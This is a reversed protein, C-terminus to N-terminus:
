TYMFMPVSPQEPKTLFLDVIEMTITIPTKLNELINELQKQNNNNYVTLKSKITPLIKEILSIDIINEDEKVILTEDNSKKDTKQKKRLRKKIPQTQLQTKQKMFAIKIVNMNSVITEIRKKISRVGEEKQNNMDNKNIIYKLIDDSFVMDENSINYEKLISPLLFDSSIKMKEEFTFGDVKILNMRDRLIPNVRNIDNFSFVFLAKSLDFPIDGYYKDQYHSNQAPDTLHILLNIIELGRSTESVKDLEDFYFIPNMCKTTKLAEVIRGPISGEYTYSHGDLFSSDTAGGLSIFIFPLGLLKSLGEKIITTKGTGMPGYISFVNGVSKPNSIIKSVLQIMHQKTKNQGYVCNNLKEIGNELFSYIEKESNNSISVPLPKYVSWPIALIGNIWSSLKNYESSGPEINKFMNLKTLCKNKIPIPLSSTIIKFRPPVSNDNLNNLDIETNYIKTKEVLSLNLFYEVDKKSLFKLKDNKLFLELYYLTLTKDNCPLDDYKKIQKHFDLFYKIERETKRDVIPKESNNNSNTNTNTNIKNNNNKKTTKNKFKILELEEESYESDYDDYDDSYEDYEEDELECRNRKSASKSKPYEYDSDSDEEMRKGVKKASQNILELNFTNLHNINKMIDMMLFPLKKNIDDEKTFSKDISEYEKKWNTLSTINKKLTKNEKELSTLKTKNSKLDSQLKKLEKQISKIDLKPPVLKKKNNINSTESDSNPSKNKVM